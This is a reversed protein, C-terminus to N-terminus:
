RAFRGTKSCSSTQPRSSRFGCTASARARRATAATAAEEIVMVVAGIRVEEGERALVSQVRGTVPSELETAVKDTEVELLAQGQQVMSGAEACVRVVKATAIGEALAPLRFEM